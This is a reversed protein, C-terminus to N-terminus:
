KSYKDHSSCRMKSATFVNNRYEFLSVERLLQLLRRHDLLTSVDEDSNAGKDEEHGDEAVAPGDLLGPHEEGGISEEDDDDCHQLNSYDQLRKYM